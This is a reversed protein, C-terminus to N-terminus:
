RQEDGDMTEGNEPSGGQGTIVEINDDDTNPEM